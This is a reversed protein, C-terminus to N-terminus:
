RDAAPDCPDGVASRLRLSDVHGLERAACEHACAEGVDIGDFYSGIGFTLHQDTFDLLRYTSRNQFVKPAAFKAMAESYGECGEPLVGATAPVIIGTSERRSRLSIDTLPVPAAPVWNPATLLPTDAVKPVDPYLETAAAVLAHRHEGLHARVEHWQERTPM